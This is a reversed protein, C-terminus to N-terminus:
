ENQRYFQDRKKVLYSGTMVSAETQTNIGGLLRERVYHVFDTGRAAM